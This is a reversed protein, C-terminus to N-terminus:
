MREMCDIQFIQSQLWLQHNLMEGQSAVKSLHQKNWLSTVTSLPFFFGAVSGGLPSRREPNNSVQHRLLVNRGWVKLWTVPLFTRLSVVQKSSIIKTWIRYGFGLNLKQCEWYHSGTPLHSSLFPIFVKTTLNTNYTMFVYIFLCSQSLTKENYILSTKKKGDESWPSILLKTQIYKRWNFM